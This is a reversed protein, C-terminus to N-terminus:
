EQLIVPWEEMVPNPLLLRCVSLISYSELSPQNAVRYLGTGTLAELLTGDVTFHEDSTWGQERAQEVVRM